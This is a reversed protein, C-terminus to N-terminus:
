CGLFKPKRKETFAEMGEKADQTSFMLGFHSNEFNFGTQKQSHNGNKMLNKVSRIAYPANKLFPALFKEFDAEFESKSFVKNVLGAQLAEHASFKVGSTGWQIARSLGIKEVLKQTGGFGPVLGLTVEPLGFISDDSCVMFDSFMALELGGGLAFGNIKAITLQPMQSFSQFVQTGFASFAAAQAPTFNKMEKIDAGAVFAKEGAGALVVVHIESNLSVTRVVEQLKSIVEHNIANLSEPRNITIKALGYSLDLSVASM